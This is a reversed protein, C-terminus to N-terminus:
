QEDAQPKAAPVILLGEAADAIDQAFADYFFADAGEIVRLDVSDPTGAFAEIAAQATPEASGVMVVVPVSATSAAVALPTDRWAAAYGVLAKASVSTAKCTRFPVGPVLADGKGANLQAEAADIAAEFDAGAAAWQAALTAESTPPPAVVVVGRTPVPLPIAETIAGLVPLAGEGHGILTVAGVNREALWGLWAQVERVAEEPTYRHPNACDFLGTRRDEALTLTPALSAIGREALARQIGAVTGTGRHGLARHLVLVVGTELDADEPESWSALATLGDLELSVGRASAPSAPMSILLTIISLAACGRPASRLAGRLGGGFVWGLSFLISRM